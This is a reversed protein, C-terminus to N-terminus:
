GLDRLMEAEKELLAAVEEISMHSVCLHIACELFHISSRRLWAEREADCIRSIARTKKPDETM